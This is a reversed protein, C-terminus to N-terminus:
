CGSVWGACRSCARVCNQSHAGRVPGLPGDRLLHGPRRHAVGHDRPSRRSVGAPQGGPLGASERRRTPSGVGDPQPRPLIRTGRRARAPSSSASSREAVWLENTVDRTTLYWDHTDDWESPRSFASRRGRGAGVENFRELPALREARGPRRCPSRSDNGNLANRRSNPGTSSSTPCSAASSLAARRIAEPVGVSAIRPRPPIRVRTVRKAPSGRFWEPVRGHQLRKLPLLVARWCPLKPEAAGHCQLACNM